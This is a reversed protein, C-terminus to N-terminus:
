GRDKASKRLENLVHVFGIPREHRDKCINQARAFANNPRDIFEDARLKIADCVTDLQRNLKYNAYVAVILLLLLFWAVPNFFYHGFRDTLKAVLKMLEGPNCRPPDRRIDGLQRAKERPRGADAM